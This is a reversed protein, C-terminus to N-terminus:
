GASQPAAAVRWAGLGSLVYFLIVETNPQILIEGGALLANGPRLNFNADEVRGNSMVTFAHGVAVCRAAIGRLSQLRVSHKKSGFCGV